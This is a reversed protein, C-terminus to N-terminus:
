KVTVYIYRLKSDLSNVPERNVRAFSFTTGLEYGTLDEMKRQGGLQRVIGGFREVISCFYSFVSSVHGPNFELSELEKHYADCLTRMPLFDSFCM